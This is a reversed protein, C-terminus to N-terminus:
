EMMREYNHMIYSNTSMITICQVCISVPERICTGTMFYLTHNVIQLCQTAVSGQFDKFFIDMKGSGSFDNFVSYPKSLKPIQRLHDMFTM